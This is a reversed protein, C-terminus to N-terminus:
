DIDKEMKDDRIHQFRPERYTGEPNRKMAKIQIVKGIIIGTAWWDHRQADTMGSIEHETGDSTVCILAGLTNRYKGTGAKMGLVLMDADCEMKIKMLGCNRKGEEYPAQLDRMIIGEEGRGWVQEAALQWKDKDFSIGIAEQWHAYAGLLNCVNYARDRRVRYPTKDVGGVPCVYDHVIIYVDECVEKRNLIGNTKPFTDVGGVRIEFLLFTPDTKLTVGQLDQRMKEALAWCSQPERGNTSAHIKGTNFCFYGFWGDEKVDLVYQKGFCKPKVKELEKYKHLAKQPNLLHRNDKLM